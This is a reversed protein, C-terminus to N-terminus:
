VHARGIENNVVNKTGQVVNNVVQKTSNVINKGIKSTEKSVDNIIKGMGRFLPNNTFSNARKNLAVAM